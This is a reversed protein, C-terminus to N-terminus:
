AISATKRSQRYGAFGLGAFGLMLMAFTSPEPITGTSTVQAIEFANSGDTTFNVWTVAEAPTFLFSLRGNSNSCFECGSDALAPIMSALQAGTYSLGNSFTIMNYSDISGAYIEVGQEKPLTLTATGDALVALYQSPDQTTASYAPALNTGSVSGTVLSFTGTLGASSSFDSVLTSGPPTLPPTDAGGYPTFTVSVLSANSASVSLLTALSITLLLKKM